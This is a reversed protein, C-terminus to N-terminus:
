KPEVSRNGGPTGPPPIVPMTEPNPNPAPKRIEPDVGLPAKIIGKSRDLREGLTEGPKAEPRASNRDQPGSKAINGNPAQPWALTPMALIAAMFAFGAGCAFGRDAGFIQWGRLM